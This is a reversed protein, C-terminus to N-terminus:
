RILNGAIIVGFNIIIVIVIVVFFWCSPPSSYRRHCRTAKWPETITTCDDEAVFSPPSSPSTRKLLWSERWSTEVITHDLILPLVAMQLTNVLADRRHHYFVVAPRGEDHLSSLKVMQKALFPGDHRFIVLNEVVGGNM